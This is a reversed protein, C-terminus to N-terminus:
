ITEFDLLAEKNKEQRHISFSHKNCISLAVKKDKATLYFLGKVTLSDIRLNSDVNISLNTTKLQILNDSGGSGYSEDVWDAIRIIAFTSDNIIFDRDPTLLKLSKSDSDYNSYPFDMNIAPTTITNKYSKLINIKYTRHVNLLFISDPRNYTAQGVVGIFFGFSFVLILILRM